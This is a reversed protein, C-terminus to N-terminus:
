RCTAYYIAHVYRIEEYMTFISVQNETYQGHCCNTYQM